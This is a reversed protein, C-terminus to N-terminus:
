ANKLLWPKFKIAVIEKLVGNYNTSTLSDVCRSFSQDNTVDNINFETVTNGGVNTDDFGARELHVHKKKM